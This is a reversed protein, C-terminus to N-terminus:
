QPDGGKHARSTFFSLCSGFKGGDKCTRNDFNIRVERITMLKAIAREVMPKSREDNAIKPPAIPTPM